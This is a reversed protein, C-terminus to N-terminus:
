IDVIFVLPDLGGAPPTGTYAGPVCALVCATGGDASIACAELAHPESALTMRTVVVSLSNVGPSLALLALDQPALDDDPFLTPWVENGTVASRVQAVRDGARVIDPRTLDPWIRRSGDLLPAPAPETPRGFGSWYAYISRNFPLEPDPDRFYEGTEVRYFFPSTRTAGSTYGGVEFRLLLEGTRRDRAPRCSHRSQRAWTDGDLLLHIHAPTTVLPSLSYASAVFYHWNLALDRPWQASNISQLGDPPVHFGVLFRGAAIPWVRGRNPKYVRGLGQAPGPDPITYQIV